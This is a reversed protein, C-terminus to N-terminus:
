FEKLVITSNGSCFGSLEGDTFAAVLLTEKGWTYGSKNPSWDSISAHLRRQVQNFTGTGTGTFTVRFQSALENQVELTLKEPNKCESWEFGERRRKADFTVEGNEPNHVINSLTVSYYAQLGTIMENRVKSHLRIESLTNGLYNAGLQMFGMVSPPPFIPLDKNTAKNTSLVQNNSSCKSELEVVRTTLALFREELDSLKNSLDVGSSATTSAEYDFQPDKLIMGASVLCEAIGEFTTNVKLSDSMLDDEDHVIFNTNASLLRVHKHANWNLNKFAIPCFVPLRPQDRESRGSEYSTLNLRKAYNYEDQCEGSLAWQNNLMIIVVNARDIADVISDRYSEGGSMETCVWVIIGRSELYLKLKKASPAMSSCHLSVMVDIDAM